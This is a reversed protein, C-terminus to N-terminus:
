SDLNKFAAILLNNEKPSGITIRLSNKVQKSSNRVIIKQTFLRKYVDDANNVEVLIFNADSSYIKKVLDCNSLARTVKKRESLIIEVQNQFQQKNILQGIAMQQTLSSVNYPPKVKNLYSIVLPNAFAMGIRLGAMGWAKSLTQLVILNPYDDMVRLWSEYACFDIYAEDIIVMGEFNSLLYTVTEPNILNGTPNNPSCIFMLKASASQMQKNLAEDLTIQFSENLRSKVMGVGNIRAAVEYMGFTPEFIIANDKGPECFVKFLLEIIEDSGNGIFIREPEISKLESIKEKLKRQYPDPYRNFEGYPNENADLFICEEGKFEDRASSYPVLEKLHPCIMKEVEVMILKM